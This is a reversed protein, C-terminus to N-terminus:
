LSVRPDMFSYVVDTLLYILSVLIGFTLTLAQVTSYDRAMIAQVMTYGVGPLAFVTEIIVAGGVLWSMYIGLITLGSVMANRLVHRSMILRESLGKAHAFVVHESRLTSIIGDRLNRGLVAMLSLGLTLSPLFLDRLKAPFTAGVGGIPFLHLKVAFVILLLIGIFFGPTSLITVFFARIIQDIWKDKNLAALLSLPVAFLVAITAGYAAMFLTLPLRMKIVDLVPQRSILSEGLDGKFLKIVFVGFQVYIPKDLGWRANLEAIKEPTARIGLYIAAPDGPILRVMLFVLVTIVIVTPIMQLLRGIIYTVKDVIDELSKRHVLV